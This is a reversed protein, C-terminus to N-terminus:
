GLEGKFLKEFTDWSMTVTTDPLSKTRIILLWQGEKDYKRAQEVFSRFNISETNKCEIVFPFREKAEGRLIVDVGAQGMERSRILSDDSQNDFKIGILGSIKRGVWHQLERGKGKASATTIRKDATVLKKEIKKLLENDDILGTSTLCKQIAVREKEDFSIWKSAM